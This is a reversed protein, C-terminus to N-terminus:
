FAIEGIVQPTHAIISLIELAMARLMLIGRFLDKENRFDKHKFCFAAAIYEFARVNGINNTLIERIKRVDEPSRAIKL